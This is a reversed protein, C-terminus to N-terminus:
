NFKIKNNLELATTLTVPFGPYLFKHIEINGSYCSVFAKSIKILVLQMKRKNKIRYILQLTPLLM